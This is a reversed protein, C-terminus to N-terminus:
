NKGYFLVGMDHSFLPRLVSRFDGV